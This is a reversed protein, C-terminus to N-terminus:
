GARRAPPWTASAASWAARRSPTPRASSRRTPTTSTSSRPTSVIVAVSRAIGPGLNSIKAQYSYREGEDVDDDKGELSVSLDAKAAGAPPQTATPPQNGISPKDGTPGQNGPPQSGAPPQGTGPPPQQAGAVQASALALAAISLILAAGRSLARRPM